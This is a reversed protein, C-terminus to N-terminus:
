YLPFLYWCLLYLSIFFFYIGVNCIYVLLSSIFVLMVFIFQYLFYIGVNCIYVLLSSIFVLM